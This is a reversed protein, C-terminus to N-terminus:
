DFGLLVRYVRKDGVLIEGQVSSGLSLPTPYPCDTIWVRVEYSRGGGGGGVSGPTQGPAWNEVKYVEGQTVGYQRYPYQQSYIRVKQGPVVKVVDREPVHFFVRRKEDPTLVLVLEGRSVSEGALKERRVVLGDKPATITYRSLLQRSRSAQEEMIAVETRTRAVGAETEKLIAQALGAAVLEQRRQAMALDVRALAVQAKADALAQGSTVGKDSATVQRDLSDQAADLRAQAREVDLESFRYSEPLPAVRLRALEQEAVALDAKKLALDDEQRSLQELYYADDIRVLVDGESVQDGDEVTVELVVGDLLSHLRVEEAPRVIGASTVYEKISVLTVAVGGLVLLLVLVLLM